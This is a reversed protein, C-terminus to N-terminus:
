KKKSEEKKTLEDFTFGMIKATRMTDYLQSVAGETEDLLDGFAEINYKVTEGKSRVASKYACYFFDRLALLDDSLSSDIEGLEVKHMECFLAWCNTGFKFPLTDDGMKIECYGSLANM